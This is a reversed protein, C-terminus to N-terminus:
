YYHFKSHGKFVTSLHILIDSKVQALIRFYNNQLQVLVSRNESSSALPLAQTLLLNHSSYLIEKATTRVFDVVEM